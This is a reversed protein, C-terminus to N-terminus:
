VGVSVSVGVGVSVGVEVGVSVGVAVGVSVGVEVGVSVGVTVPVGGVDVGVIVGVTVPVGGVDVGVGVKVIVGVGVAVPVNVGFRPYVRDTVGASAFFPCTKVKLTMRLLLPVAEAKLTSIVSVKEDNRSIELATDVWPVTLVLAAARVTLTTTPVTSGPFVTVMVIMQTTLLEAVAVTVCVWLETMIKVNL